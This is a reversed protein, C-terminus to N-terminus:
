ASRAGQANPTARPNRQALQAAVLKASNIEPPKGVPCPLAILRHELAVRVRSYSWGGAWTTETREHRQLIGFGCLLDTYTKWAARRCVGEARMQRYSFGILGGHWCFSTVSARWMEAETWSQAPMIPPKFEHVSVLRMPRPDSQRRGALWGLAFAVLVTTITELMM